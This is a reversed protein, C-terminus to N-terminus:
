KYYQQLIKNVSVAADDLAQQATKQDGWAAEIEKMLIAKINSAEAVNPEAISYKMQDVFVKTYFDGLTSKHSDFDIQRTPIAGINQALLDGLATTNTESRKMSTFWRLFDWAADKNTSKAAVGMFWGYQLTAPKIMYPFPAVGVTSEFADGFNQQFKTKNWPPAIVMAVKGLGFDYFNGNIDTAGKKFLQLEENLAEVGQPTNFLAQKFDSSLYQGGNSFLLSLFPDVSQWDNGVLFAIGYQTINGRADRKALKVAKNVLDKWTKPYDPNGQADVIGAKKFLEKNYLLCYDNIETPIGWIQGNITAGASSVYNEQVDKVLDAPPKDLIGLQVYSVAWTSYTQYIDPPVGADSLIRFKDAYSNYPIVQITISIDPHLKMYEDLYQQLGKTKLVGNEYVGNRQVDEAWQVAYTLHIKKDSLNTSTPTPSAEEKPVDKLGFFGGIAAAIVLAIVGGWMRKKNM